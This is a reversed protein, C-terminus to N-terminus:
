TGRSTKSGEDRRGGLLESPNWEKTGGKFNGKLAKKLGGKLGGEGFPAPVLRM